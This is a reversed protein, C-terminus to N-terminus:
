PRASGFLSIVLRVLEAQTSCGTRQYINKFHWRVGDISLGRDQAQKEISEGNVLSWVAEAQKPTLGLGAKIHEISPGRLLSRIRMTMVFLHPGSAAAFLGAERRGKSDGRRELPEIELVNPGTQGPVEFAMIHPGVAAVRGKGADQLIASLRATDDAKHLRVRRGASLAFL